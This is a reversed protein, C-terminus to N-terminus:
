ATLLECDEDLNSEDNLDFEEVLGHVEEWEHKMETIKPDKRNEKVKGKDFQKEKTLKTITQYRSPAPVIEADQDEQYARIIEALEKRKVTKGSPVNRNYVMWDKFKDVAKIFYYLYEGEIFSTPCKAVETTLINWDYEDSEDVYKAWLKKGTNYLDNFATDRSKKVWPKRDWKHWEFWDWYAQTGEKPKSDTEEICELYEGYGEQVDEDERDDKAPEAPVVKVKLQDPKPPVPPPAKKAPSTQV